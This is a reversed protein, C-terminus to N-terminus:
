LPRHSILARCTKIKTCNEFRQLNEAALYFVGFVSIKKPVILPVSCWLKLRWWEHGGMVHFQTKHYYLMTSGWSLGPIESDATQWEVLKVVLTVLLNEIDNFIVSCLDYKLICISFYNVFYTIPLHLIYTILKYSNEDILIIIEYWEFLM